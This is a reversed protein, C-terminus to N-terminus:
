EECVKVQGKDSQIYGTAAGATRAPRHLGWQHVERVNGVGTEWLVLVALM